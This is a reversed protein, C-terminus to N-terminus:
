FIMAYCFWFCVWSGVAWTSGIDLLVIWGVIAFMVPFCPSLILFLLAFRAWFMFCSAPPLTIFSKKLDLGMGFLFFFMWTIWCWRGNKATQQTEIRPELFGPGPFPFPILIRSSWLGFMRPRQLLGSPWLDGRAVRRFIIQFCPSRYQYLCPPFLFSLAVGVIWPIRRAFPFSFFFVM